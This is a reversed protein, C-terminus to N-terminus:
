QQKGGHAVADPFLTRAEQWFFEAAPSNRTPSCLLSLETKVGLADLLKHVM